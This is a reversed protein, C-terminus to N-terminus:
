QKVRFLGVGGAWLERTVPNFRLVLPKVYPLDGTIEQWTAGGDSTKYIGGRATADWGTLALWMTKSDRPDIELGVISQGNSDSFHTVQQWTRGHDTSRWLNHGSCYVVGEPNVAVNFIWHEREFALPWTAGGDDSRYLGGGVGCAGWYLRKSNTPDVALGNFMRRSGPQAPLQKWTAGGDESKFIGGGSKGDGADGDIGMYVVSPNQPDVALARPYGQGWMTNLRVVYDPLGATSVKYTKGGDESLIVRNVYKTDWPSSTCLIRDVGGAQSIALRWNHGSLSPDPKLPWLERWSGGNDESVFSGEDMVSVYAREGSFRIDTVCSIDAGRDRETWTRGGDESWCSRWNASIFLERPNLPNITINTPISLTARDPVTPDGVLDPIVKSSNTWTKGGDNSYYFGGDWRVDDAGIAYVDLPNGPSVAVEKVAFDKRLGQSINTWTRGKDTSKWIGEKFFAGYITGPEGPVVAVSAARVPTKLERWTEGADESLVVGCDETAALVVRPEDLSVVVSYITGSVPAGMRANAYVGGGADKTFERVTVLKATGAGEGAFAFFCRRFLVVAPKEMLPGVCTFDMRKVKSWAPKAPAKKAGEPNNKAYYWDISFDEAKLTIEHWQKDKLSQALDKSAYVPGDATTITLIAKTAEPLDGQLALGVGVCDDEKAESPFGLPAWMAGFYQGDVKGYQVRRVGPEIEPMKREYVARWNQGGDMSKFVRGAPSGAYM